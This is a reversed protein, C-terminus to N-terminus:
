VAAILLRLAGGILHSGTMENGHGSLLRHRLISTASLSPNSGEIRNGTYRMELAACEVVRGGRRMDPASSHAQARTSALAGMLKALSCQWGRERAFDPSEAAGVTTQGALCGM